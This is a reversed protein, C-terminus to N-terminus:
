NGVDEKLGVATLGATLGVGVAAAGVLFFYLGSVPVFPFYIFKSKLIMVVIQLHNTAVIKNMKWKQVSFFFFFVVFFQRSLRPNSPPIGVNSCKGM